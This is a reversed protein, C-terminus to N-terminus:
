EEGELYTHSIIEAVGKLHKVLSVISNPDKLTGLDFRGDEAHVEILRFFIEEEIKTQKLKNM